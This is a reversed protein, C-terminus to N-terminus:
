RSTRGAARAKRLEERLAFKANLVGEQQKLGARQERLRQRALETAAKRLDIEVRAEEKRLAKLDDLEAREAENRRSTAFPYRRALYAQGEEWSVPQDGAFADLPEAARPARLPIGKAKLMEKATEAEAPSASQAAMARLGAIKEKSWDSM